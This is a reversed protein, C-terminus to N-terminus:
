DAELYACVAPHSRGGASACRRAARALVPVAIFAGAIGWLWGMLMVAVFVFVPRLHLRHGM